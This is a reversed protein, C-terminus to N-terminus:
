NFNENIYGPKAIQLGNFGQIDGEQFRSLLAVQESEFDDEQFHKV